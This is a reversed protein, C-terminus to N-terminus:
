EGDRKKLADKLGEKYGLNYCYHCSIIILIIVATGQLLALVVPNMIDLGM